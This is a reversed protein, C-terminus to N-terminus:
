FFWIIDGAATFQSKKTGAQYVPQDYSHEYRLEPRFLISTGIWHGWNFMSETYKTRFGTRQGRMDDFYENRISIYNHPGIQYEFYNTVAWEPAYCTTPYLGSPAPNCWAGNAGTELLPAAEALTNAPAAPNVDPVDKEWQYWGETAVHWNKSLVHYWTFYYAQLNNYAYRGSDRTLNTENDCVYIQDKGTTWQYQLCWNLTLKADQKDWPAVDCGPSLGVQVTWRQSLKTTADVGTQTYCDFTYLLSHSYSYNNPALQAEIDPLSVYRGIRLDMGEAIHPFYLDAYVMVPDDGYEQCTVNACGVSNPGLLQQSFIGKSTTFRYDLGWLDTLRFGWDFHETQVTDPEREIYIVEQDPEISNGIEDYSAPYNSYKGVDNGTNIAHSTSWNGGVNLWGYIQIRSRKWADGHRGSWIAQMLPSSQTWATGIWVTGGIPWDAFPFPPGSVPAPWMGPRRDAAIEVNAPTIGKWDFRYAEGLRRFFGGRFTATLPPPSSAGPSSPQSSLEQGLGLSSPVASSTGLLLDIDVTQGVALEVDIAASDAFGEKTATVVYRGPDLGEIAFTGNVDSAVTRSRDGGAGRVVILSEPLPLGSRYRTTGHLGALDRREDPRDSLVSGAHADILLNAQDQAGCIAVCTFAVSAAFIAIVGRRKPSAGM